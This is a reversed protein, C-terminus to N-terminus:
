EIVLVVPDYPAVTLSLTFREGDKTFPVSEYEGAPTIRKVDKVERRIVLPLEEISDLSMDLLACLLRGDKMRAAKMLVECDDPYYVPLEDLDTLIQIMQRKRSENLFGFAENLNHDFCSNGGFVVVTGGLENKYSTVGPFMIDKHVGNRLHYIESYHKVDDSLPIIERVDKPPKSTAGTPYILEGSANPASPDRRKVDVGLYKGFGRSIFGEAAM